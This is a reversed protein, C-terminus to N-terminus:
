YGAARGFLRPADGPLDRAVTLPGVAVGRDPSPSPQDPAWPRRTATPASSCASPASASPSSRSSTSTTRCARTSSCNPCREAVTAVEKTGEFTSFADLVLM